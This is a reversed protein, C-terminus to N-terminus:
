WSTTSESSSSSSVGTISSCSSSTLTEVASSESSSSSNDGIFPLELPLVFSGAHTAQVILYGGQTGFTLGGAPTQGVYTVSTCEDAGERFDNLDVFESWTDGYDLSRYVKSGSGAAYTSGSDDSVIGRVNEVIGTLVHGHWYDYGLAAFADLAVSEVEGNRITHSHSSGFSNKRVSLVSDNAVTFGRTLAETLHIDSGSVSLVTTSFVSMTMDSLEVSDGPSIGSPDNVKVIDVGKAATVSLPTRFVVFQRYTTGQTAGYATADLEWSYDKTIGFENSGDFDWHSPDSVKVVIRDSLAGEVIEDYVIPQSFNRYVVLRAGQLLTPDAAILPNDLGVANKVYITAFGATALSISSIDGRLVDSILNAAHYHDEDVSTKKWKFSPLPVFVDSVVSVRDGFAYQRPDFDSSTVVSRSTNSDITFTTGGQTSDNRITMAEGALVNNEWYNLFSVWLTSKGSKPVMRIAQGAAVDDEESISSDSGSTSSEAMSYVNPPIIAVSILIQDQTSSVVGYEKGANVAEQPDIYLYGGGFENTQVPQDFSVYLVSNQGIAKFQRGIMEDGMEGAIIIAAAGSLTAESNSVIDFGGVVGQSQSSSSESVSLSSSSSDDAAQRPVAAASTTPAAPAQRTSSTVTGVTFTRTTTAEANTLKTKSDSALTVKLTYSGDSVPLTYSATQQSFTGVGNAEIIVGGDAPIDFNQTSYGVSITKTGSEYQTGDQPMSVILTPITALSTDITITINAQSWSGPIAKDSTDLLQLVVAHTGNAIGYVVVSNSSKTTVVASGDVIVQVSGSGPMPFNSLSYNFTVDKSPSTMGTVPSVIQIIPDTTIAVEFNRVVEVGVANGNMDVLYFKVSHSGQALGSITASKPNGQVYPVQTATQGDVSMMINGDSEQVFNTLQVKATFTPTQVTDHEQPYLVELSPLIESSVTSFAVQRFAGPSSVNKKNRDTLQVSLSHQGQAVGTISYAPTTAYIPDGGDLIIKAYGSLGVQFSLTSLVVNVTTSSVVQNPTPSTIAVSPATTTLLVVRKGALGNAQVNRDLTCSLTTTGGSSSLALIEGSVDIADVVARKNVAVVTGDLGQTTLHTKKDYMMGVNSGVFVTKDDSEAFCGIEMPLVYFSDGENLVSSADQGVVVVWDQGSSGIKWSWNGSVFTLGILSNDCLTPSSSPYSFKLVLKSNGYDTAYAASVTGSVASQQFVIDMNKLNDATSAIQTASTASVGNMALLATGDSMPTLAKPKSESPQGGDTLAWSTGNKSIALINHGGAVLPNKIDADKLNISGNWSDWWYKGADKKSGWRFALMTVISSDFTTEGVRTWKALNKNGSIYLGKAGAVCARKGDVITIAYVPGADLYSLPIWNEEFSSEMKAVFLGADTGVLMIGILDGYGFAVANVAKGDWITGGSEYAAASHVASLDVDFFNGIYNPDTPDHSYRMMYAQWRKIKDDVTPFGYKTALILESVDAIHTDSLQLPLGATELSLGDELESHKLRGGNLIWSEYFNGSIVSSLDLNAIREVYGPMPVDAKIPEAVVINGSGVSEIIAAQVASSSRIAISDGASFQSTSSVQIISDGMLASVTMPVWSAFELLGSDPYVDMHIGYKERNDTGSGTAIIKKGNVVIDYPYQPNWAGNEALWENGSVAMEVVDSNVTLTRSFAGKGNHFAFGFASATGNVSISPVPTGSFSVVTTLSTGGSSSYIVNDCGVYIKKLDYSWSFGYATGASSSQWTSGGDESIKLNGSCALYLNGFAASMKGFEQGSPSAGCQTWTAGSDASRYITGSVDICYATSVVSHSHGSVKAVAWGSIPHVHPTGSSAASTTGNGNRDVSVTHWHGDAATSTVDLSYDRAVCVPSSIGAITAITGGRDSIRKLGTATAAMMVNPAIEIIEYVHSGLEYQSVFGYSQGGSATLRSFLVGCDTGCWMNGSADAALSSFLRVQIPANAGAWSTSTSGVALATPLVANIGNQQVLGWTPKDDYLKRVLFYQPTDALQNNPNEADQQDVFVDPQVERIVVDDPLIDGSEKIQEAYFADMRAVPTQVVSIDINGKTTTQSPFYYTDGLLLAAEAASILSEYEPTSVDIGVGTEDSYRAAASILAALLDKNFEHYTRGGILFRFAGNVPVALFGDSTGAYLTGDDAELVSFVSKATGMIPVSLDHSHSATSALGQWSNIGTSVVEGVQNGTIQHSHTIRIAQGNKDEWVAIEGDVKVALTTGDGDEDVYVRHTHGSSASTEQASPAFRIGDQTFTPYEVPYFREGIRGLHSIFPIRASQFTGTVISDARLFFINDVPLKGMVEVNGLIEVSVEDIKGPIVLKIDIFRAINPLLTFTDNAEQLTTMAAAAQTPLDEFGALSWDPESVIDNKSFTGNIPIPDCRHWQGSEDVEYNVSGVLYFEFPNRISITKGSSESEAVAPSWFTNYYDGAVGAIFGSISYQKAEYTHSRTKDVAYTASYTPPSVNVTGEKFTVTKASPDVSYDSSSAAVGNVYVKVLSSSTWEDAPSSLDHVHVSVSSGYGVIPDQVVSESIQHYHWDVSGTMNQTYGNGSADVAYTHYHEDTVSTKLSALVAYTAQGGSFQSLVCQRVDTELRVQPPDYTQTGGHRHGIIMSKAIDTIKGKFGELNITDSTDITTVSGSRTTVKALLVRNSAPAPVAFRVFRVFTQDPLDSLREAYIYSDSNDPLTMNDADPDHAKVFPDEFFGPPPDKYHPTLVGDVVGNYDKDEGDPGLSDFIQGELPDTGGVGFFVGEWSGGQSSWGPMEQIITYGAAVAADHHMPVGTVPDLVYPTESYYGDIFGAGASIRIKRGYAQTIKWGTVIGNGVIGVYAGLNYDLTVFRRYDELGSYIDGEDFRGLRYTPTRRM